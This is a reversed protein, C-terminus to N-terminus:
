VLNNHDFSPTFEKRAPADADVGPISPAESVDLLVPTAPLLVIDALPSMYAKKM